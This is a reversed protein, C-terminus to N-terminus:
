RPFFVGFKQIYIDHHLKIFFLRNLTLLLKSSVMLNLLFLPYLYSEIWRM